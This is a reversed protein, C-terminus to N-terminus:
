LYKEEHIQLPDLNNKIFMWLDDYDSLTNPLILAQHKTVYLYIANKTKWAGDISKWSYRGAYNKEKPYYFMIGNASDSLRISYVERPPNLNMKAVQTKVGNSYSNFYYVPILVCFCCIVSGVTGAWTYSDQFAFCMTSLMFLCASLSVTKKWRKQKKHNDYTIFDKMQKENLIIPTSYYDRLM